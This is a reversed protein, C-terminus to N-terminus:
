HAVLRVAFKKVEGNRYAEAVEKSSFEVAKLKEEREQETLTDWQSLMEITRALREGPLYHSNNPIIQMVSEKAV